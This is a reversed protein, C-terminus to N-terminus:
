KKTREKSPQKKGASIKKVATKTKKASKKPSAPAKTAPAPKERTVPPQKEKAEVSYTGRVAVDDSEEFTGLIDEERIFTVHEGDVEFERAMYDVFVIKQGPKLVTPIFKKEKEDAKKKYIGPGIAEIIGQSPTEQASDPIIIGGSTKEGPQIKRVLAWDHLPRINMYAEETIFFNV